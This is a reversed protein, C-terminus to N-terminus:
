ALREHKGQLNDPSPDVVPRNPTVYVGVAGLAAIAITLWEQGSISGDSLASQAALVATTLIAVAAKAYPALIIM